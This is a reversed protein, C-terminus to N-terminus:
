YLAPPVQEAQINQFYVTVREPGVGLEKSLFARLPISYETNKGKSFVDISLVSLHATPSDSPGCCMQVGCQVMVSVREPPKTLVEAVLACFRLHFDKPITEQPVNTTVNCIPM